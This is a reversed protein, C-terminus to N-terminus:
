VCHRILSFYPLCLFKFICVRWTPNIGPILMWIINIHRKFLARLVYKHGKEVKRLNSGLWRVMTVTGGGYEGDDGRGDDSQVDDDDGACQADDSHHDDDGADDDGAGAGCQATNEPWKQGGTRARSRKRSPLPLSPALKALSWVIRIMMMMMMMMLLMIKTMM